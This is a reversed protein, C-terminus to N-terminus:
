FCLMLYSRKVSTTFFFFFTKGRASVTTLKRLKTVYLLSLGLEEEREGQPQRNNKNNNKKKTGKNSLLLHSDIYFDELRNGWKLDARESASWRSREHQIRWTERLFSSAAMQQHALARHHSKLLAERPDHRSEIPEGRQWDPLILGGATRRCVRARQRRFNNEFIIMKLVHRGSFGETDTWM